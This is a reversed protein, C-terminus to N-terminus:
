ITVEKTFFGNKCFYIITEDCCSKVGTNGTM